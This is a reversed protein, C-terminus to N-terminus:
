ASQREAYEDLLMGLREIDQRLPLLRNLETYINKAKHLQGQRMLSLIRLKRARLHMTDTLDGESRNFWQEAAKYDQNELFRTGITYAAWYANDDSATADFYLKEAENLYGTRAALVSGLALGAGGIPILESKLLMEFRSKSLQERSQLAKLSALPSKRNRGHRRKIPIGIGSSLAAALWEFEPPTFGSTISFTVTPAGALDFMSRLQRGVDWPCELLVGDDSVFYDLDIDVKAGEVGCSSLRDITTIVVECGEIRASATENAPDWSFTAALQDSYGPLMSLKDFLTMRLDQGPALVRRPLVWVFRHVFGLAMAAFVFNDLGYASNPDSAFPLGRNLSALKDPGISAAERIRDLASHSLVKLDLHRDLCVITEAFYGLAQWRALIEGHEERAFITM